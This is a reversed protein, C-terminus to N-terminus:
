LLYTSHFACAVGALAAAIVPAGNAFAALAALLLVGFASPQLGTGLLYQNAVGCQLYWPYDVGTLEVSVVRLIAAHAATFLAAFALRFARSDPVGPLAGVLWRASMFYGMLLVFYAAQFSWEGLYRYGNAVLGSFVPTPDRTKALWDRGLHGHGGAALGHLFYQHQNSFYLPSQTYAVAFAVALLIAELFHASRPSSEPM